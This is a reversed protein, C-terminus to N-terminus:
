ACTKNICPYAKPTIDAMKLGYKKIIAKTEDPIIYKKNFRNDVIEQLKNCEEDTTNKFVNRGWIREDGWQDRRDKIHLLKETPYKAEIIKRESSYEPVMRKATCKAALETLYFYKSGEDTNDDELVYILKPFAPTVWVGDSNKVGQLRQKLVEEIILALDEKEQETEVENLYM